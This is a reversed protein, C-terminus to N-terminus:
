EVLNLHAKETLRMESNSSHHTLEILGIKVLNEVYERFRGYPDNVMGQVQTMRAIGNRSADRQIAELIDSVLEFKSRKSTGQIVEGNFIGKM